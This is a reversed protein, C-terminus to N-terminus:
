HHRKTISISLSKTGTGTSNKASVTVNFTGRATPTGAILGTSTNVSLGSPLGTAGFSTPSNSATIQYSFSSNQIGSATSASTIVPSSTISSDTVTFSIQLSTGSTGTGGSSSYPTAKLTYSGVSPTWATYSTGSDGFLAYPSTSETQSHTQAGSLAFVVSGVPNPNTNARINLHKTPLTALNLTAGNSLTQIDQATDANILTFSTVAESPPTSTVTLNANISIVSGLLNSVKVSFLSGSDALTTAPTTYTSSNAGSIASGNRMWQYTPAPVGSATVSFVASTGAAVTVNQPQSTISPAINSVPGSITLVLTKTGTGMSNSASLIVSFSGGTTPTGIILGTTTNITLGAPLNSANFSTPSNIAQIQYSFPLGVSGTAQPESSIIPAAASDNYLTYVYMTGTSAGSAVNMSQFRIQHTTYLHRADISVSTDNGVNASFSTWTSGNDKSFIFKGGSVATILGADDTVFHGLFGAPNSVKKWYSGTWRSWTKGPNSMYSFSVIPKLDSGYGAICQNWLSSVGSPWPQPTTNDMDGKTMPLVSIVSGDARHWTDGSDDSYAYFTHTGWIVKNDGWDQGLAAFHLRNNKDVQINPKYGEYADYSANKNTWALVTAKVSPEKGANVGSFKWNTGGLATWKHTATDYRAVCAALIGGNWALNAGLRVRYCAFLKGYRDTVFNLYSADYGPPRRDVNDGYFTFSTIDEPHNSVWYRWNGYHMGSTVHIYGDKDIGLSAASHYTDAPAISNPIKYTTVVGSPTKKAIMTSNDTGLWVTYINKNYTSVGSCFDGLHSVSVPFYLEKKLVMGANCRLAIITLLLLGLSKFFTTKM